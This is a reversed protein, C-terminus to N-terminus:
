FSHKRIWCKPLRSFDDITSVSQSSSTGDLTNTRYVSGGISISWLRYGNLRFRGLMRVVRQKNPYEGKLPPRSSCEVIYLYVFPRVGMLGAYALDMGHLYSLGNSVDSLQSTLFFLLVLWISCVLKLRNTHPNRKVYRTIKGHPMWVSVAAFEFQTSNWVGLFPLVNPHSLQKWALM